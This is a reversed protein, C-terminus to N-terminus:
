KGPLIDHEPSNAEATWALRLHLGGFGAEVGGPHKLLLEELEVDDPGRELRVILLLEELLVLFRLGEEGLCLRHVRHRALSDLLPSSPEGQVPHLLRDCVFEIAQLPGHLADCLRDSLAPGSTPM